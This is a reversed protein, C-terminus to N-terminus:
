SMAIIKTLNSEKRNRRSFAEREHAGSRVTHPLAIPVYAGDATVNNRKYTGTQPEYQYASSYYDMESILSRCKPAGDKSLLMADKKQVMAMEKASIDLGGGRNESWWQRKRSKEVVKSNLKRWEKEQDYRIEDKKLYRTVTSSAIKFRAAIDKIKMKEDYYLVESKAQWM